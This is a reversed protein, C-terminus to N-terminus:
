NVAHFRRSVSSSLRIALSMMKWGYDPTNSKGLCNNRGSVVEYCSLLVIAQVASLSHEEFVSRLTLAARGLHLYREGEQNSPTLTLDAAAGMAFVMFLLGLDFADMIEDSRYALPILEGM